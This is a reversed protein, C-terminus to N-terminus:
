IRYPKCFRHSTTSQSLSDRFPMNAVTPDSGDLNFSVKAQGQRLRVAYDPPIVPAVGDEGQEILDTLETNTNVASSLFFYDTTQFIELLATSEVSHSQDFVAVPLYKVDNSFIFSLLVMKVLPVMIVLALMRKDRFLQIFEKRVIAILRLYM